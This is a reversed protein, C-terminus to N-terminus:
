YLFIKIKNTKGPQMPTGSNQVLCEKLRATMATMSSQCVTIGINDRSFYFTDFNTTNLLFYM